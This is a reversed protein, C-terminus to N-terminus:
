FMTFQITNAICKSRKKERGMQTAIAQNEIEEDFWRQYDRELFFEFFIM